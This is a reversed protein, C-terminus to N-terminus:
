GKSKLSIVGASVREDRLEKNAQQFAVGLSVWDEQTTSYFSSARLLRGEEEKSLGILSALGSTKERATSCASGTSLSFGLKDLRAVWSLNDFEPMLLFSTNWLRAVNHGIIKVGPINKLLGSEFSEKWQGREKTSYNSATIKSLAIRMGDIAPLNETGGRSEMEQGGGLFWQVPLKSYLAGSGKPGGFKHGSFAFSACDSFGKHDLKGIWQTADCHFWVKREKCFLAIEHWPLLVGTENHAAMMSVFSPRFENFIEQFQDFDIWGEENVPIFHVRNGFSREIAELVSPHEVSSVLAVGRAGDFRKSVSALLSNNSETAGSTFILCGPDVALSLAMEERAREVLARVRRGARHPSSPNQWSLDLHELTADRVEEFPRTTSNNDFYAM